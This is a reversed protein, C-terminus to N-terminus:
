EKPEIVGQEILSQVGRGYWGQLGQWVDHDSIWQWAITQLEISPNENLWDEVIECARAATMEQYEKTKRPLFTQNMM